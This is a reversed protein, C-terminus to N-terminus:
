WCFTKILSFYERCGTSSYPKPLPSNQLLFLSHNEGKKMWIGTWIIQKWAGKRWLLLLFFCLLCLSSIYGKIFRTTGLWLFTKMGLLSQLKGRIFGLIPASFINGNWNPLYVYLSKEEKLWWSYICTQLVKEQLRQLYVHLLLKFLQPQRSDGWCVWLPMICWSFLIIWFWCSTIQM